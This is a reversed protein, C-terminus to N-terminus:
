SPMVRKMEEKLNSVHQLAEQVGVEVDSPPHMVFRLQQLRMM